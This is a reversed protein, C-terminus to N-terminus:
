KPSGVLTNLANVFEHHYSYHEAMCLPLPLEPHPRCAYINSLPSLSHSLSLSVSPTPYLTHSLFRM